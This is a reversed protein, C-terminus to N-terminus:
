NKTFVLQIEQGRQNAEVIMAGEKFYGIGVFDKTIALYCGGGSKNLKGILSNENWIVFNDGQRQLQYTTNLAKYDYTPATNKISKEPAGLPKQEMVTAKQAAPVAQLAPKEQSVRQDVTKAVPEYKYNLDDLSTMADRMASFYAKQNNKERGIGEKTTFVVKGDCDVFTLTIKRSLSGSKTVNMSLTNCVGVNKDAPQIKNNKFANFGRKKLEFVALDNLSYENAENQFEYQNDVVVYKYSNLVQASTGLTILSVALFLLYKM